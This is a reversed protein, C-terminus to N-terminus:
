DYWQLMWLVVFHWLRVLVSATNAQLLWTGRIVIGTRAPSM